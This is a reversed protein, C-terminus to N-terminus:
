DLICARCRANYWNPDLEALITFTSNLAFQCTAVWTTSQSAATVRWFLVPAATAVTTFTDGADLDVSANPNTYQVITYGAFDTFGQIVFDGNNLTNLAANIRIQSGIAFNTVDAMVLRAQMTTGSIFTIQTLVGTGDPQITKGSAYSTNLVTGDLYLLAATADMSPAAQDINVLPFSVDNSLYKFFEAAGVHDTFTFQCSNLNVNSTTCVNSYPQVQLQMGARIEVDNATFIGSGDDQGQWAQPTYTAVQDSAGSVTGSTVIWNQNSGNWTIRYVTTTSIGIVPGNGTLSGTLFQGTNATQIQCNYNGTGGINMVEVFDGSNMFNQTGLDPLTHIGRVYNGSGTFQIRRGRYTQWNASNNLNISNSSQITNVGIASNPIKGGSLTINSRQATSANGTGVILEQNSPTGGTYSIGGGASSQATTFRLLYPSGTFASLQLHCM